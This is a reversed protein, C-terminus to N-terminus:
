NTEKIVSANLINKEGKYVMLNGPGSGPEGVISVYIIYRYDGNKFEYQHNGCTGLKTIMGEVLILDPESSFEADAPWAAYRFIGNNLLDIRIRHSKTKWDLVPFYFEKLSKHLNLKQHNILAKQMKKETASKRLFCLKGKYNLVLSTVEQFWIGNRANSDWNYTQSKKLKAMLEDDFLEDYRALFEKENEIAKIPYARKLPYHIQKALLKKDKLSATFKKVAKEVNEKSDYEDDAAQASRQSSHPLKNNEALSVHSAVILIAATKAMSLKNILGIKKM